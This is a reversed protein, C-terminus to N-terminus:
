FLPQRLIRTAARRGYAVATQNKNQICPLYRYKAIASDNLSMKPYFFPVAM